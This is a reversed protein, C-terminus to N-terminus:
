ASRKRPKLQEVNGTKQGSTIGEIHQAWRELANKRQELYESRNYIGAVGARASGSMHGITAEVVHPQIGLAEHLGTVVTRRLDHIRWPAVPEGEEEAVLRDLKM